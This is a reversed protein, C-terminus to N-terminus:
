WLLNVILWIYSACFVFRLFFSLKFLYNDRATRSIKISKWRTFIDYFWFKLVKQSYKWKLIGVTFNIRFGFGIISRILNNEFFVLLASCLAFYFFFIFCFTLQRWRMSSISLALFVCMFQVGAYVRLRVKHLFTPYLSLFIFLVFLISIKKTNNSSAQMHLM